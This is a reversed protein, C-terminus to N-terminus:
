PPESLPLPPRALNPESEVVPQRNGIPECLKESQYVRLHGAGIPKKCKNCIPNRYWQPVSVIHPNRWWQPESQDPPNKDYTPESSQNTTSIGRPESPEM